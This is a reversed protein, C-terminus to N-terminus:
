AKESADCITPAFEGESRDSFLSVLGCAHTLAFPAAIRLFFAILTLKCFQFQISFFKM